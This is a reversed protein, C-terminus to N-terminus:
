EANADDYETTDLTFDFAEAAANLARLGEPMVETGIGDGALVAISHTQGM